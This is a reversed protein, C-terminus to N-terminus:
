YNLISIMNANYRVITEPNNNNVWEGNYLLFVYFNLLWHVFMYVVQFFFSDNGFYVFVREKTIFTNINLKLDLFFTVGLVKLIEVYM